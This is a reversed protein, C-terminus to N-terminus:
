QDNAQSNALTGIPTINGTEIIDVSNQQTLNSMPINSTVLSNLQEYNHGESQVNTMNNVLNQSATSTLSEMNTLNTLNNGSASTTATLSGNLTGNLMPNIMVNNATNINNLDSPTLPIGNLTPTSHLSTVPNFQNLGNSGATVDFPIQPPLGLTNNSLTNLNNIGALTNNNATNNFETRARKSSSPGDPSSNSGTTLNGSGGSSNMNPFSGSQMALQLKEEERRKLAM